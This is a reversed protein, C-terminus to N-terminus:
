PGQEWRSSCGGVGRGAKKPVVAPKQFSRSLIEQFTGRSEEGSLRHGQRAGCKFHERENNISNTKKM